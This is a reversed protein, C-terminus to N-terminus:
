NSTLPMDLWAQHIQTLLNNAEQLLSVDNNLNAKTLITQMYEYLGALNAAIEGGKELDLVSRLEGIISITKGIHEGKAAIEKREMSGQASAIHARAGQFLLSILEHPSAAEVRSHLDINKYQQHADQYANKM